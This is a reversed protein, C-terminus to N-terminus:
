ADHNTFPLLGMARARKIARTVKRQNKATLGSRRPPLVKGEASLFRRLVDTNLYNIEVDKNQLFYDVLRRRSKVPFRSMIEEFTRYALIFLRSIELSGAKL